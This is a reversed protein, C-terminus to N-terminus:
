QFLPLTKTAPKIHTSPQVTLPSQAHRNPSFAIFLAAIFTTRAKPNYSAFM